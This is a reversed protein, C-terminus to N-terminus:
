SAENLDSRAKADEERCTHILDFADRAMSFAEPISQAQTILEPEMPSTVSLWGDEAVEITLLLDGDSINYKKGIESM